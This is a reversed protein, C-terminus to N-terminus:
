RERETQRETETQRDKDIQRGTEMVLQKNKKKERERERHTCTKEPIKKLNGPFNEEPRRNWQM